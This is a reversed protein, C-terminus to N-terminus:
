PSKFPLVKAPRNILDHIQGCLWANVSQGREAATKKAEIYLERPLRLQFRVTKKKQRQEDSSREGMAM